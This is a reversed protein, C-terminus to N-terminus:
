RDVGHAVEAVLTFHDFDMADFLEFVVRDCGAALYADIAQRLRPPSGCAWFSDREALWAEIDDLGLLSGLASRRLQFERDNAGILVGLLVSRRLSRPDRSVAICERDLQRNVERAQDPGARLLSYGDALRVAIDRSRRGGQGGVTLPPPSGAAAGLLARMQILQSELLDLRDRLPPFPLGFRRHEDADWGAGLGVDVRGDTMNHVTLAMGAVVAPPRFTVPSVLTGLRIRTTDRALAAVCAWADTWSSAVSFPTSYHDSRYFAGFGLREATQAAASQAAYDFGLQPEVLVATPYREATM